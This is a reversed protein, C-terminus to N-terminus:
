CLQRLERGSISPDSCELVCMCRLCILAYSYSGWGGETCRLCMNVDLFWGWRGVLYPLCELNLVLSSSIRWWCSLFNQIFNKKKKVHLIYLYCMKLSIKIIIFNEQFKITNFIHSKKFNFILHGIYFYILVWIKCAKM